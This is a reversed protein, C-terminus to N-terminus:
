LLGGSKKVTQPLRLKFEEEDELFGGAEVLHSNM